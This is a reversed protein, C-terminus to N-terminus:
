TYRQAFYRQRAEVTLKMVASRAEYYKDQFSIHEAYGLMCRDLLGLLSHLCTRLRRDFSIVARHIAADTKQVPVDYAGFISLSAHLLRVRYAFSGRVSTAEPLHLLRAHAERCFAVIGEEEMPLTSRSPLLALAEAGRVHGHPDELFDYLGDLRELMRHLVDTKWSADKDTADDGLPEPDTSECAQRLGRVEDMFRRIAYSENHWRSWLDEHRHFVNM